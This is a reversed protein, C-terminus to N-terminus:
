PQLGRAVQLARRTRQVMPHDEGMNAIQHGLVWELQGVAEARRGARALAVGYDRRVWLTYRHDPRSLLQEALSMATRFHVEANEHDGELSALKGLSQEASIDYVSPV